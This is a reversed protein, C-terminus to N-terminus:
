DGGNRWILASLQPLCFTSCLAVVDRTKSLKCCRANLPYHGSNTTINDTIRDSVGFIWIMVQEPMVLPMNEVGAFFISAM